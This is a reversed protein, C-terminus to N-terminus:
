DKKCFIVDAYAPLTSGPATTIDHDHNEGAVTIDAAGIDVTETGSETSTIGTHTHTDAGATGGYTAAGRIFKNDLATFRTWGSDCANDFLAILGSPLPNDVTFTRSAAITGGGNLGTGATLTVGAHAIHEDAVFGTLSDHNLVAELNAFTIKQSGSDTIDVMALFDGSAIGTEVGLENLDVTFTRNSAITGGGSLGVGATLTVGGHAVHEDTVFGALSDHNLTSELNAFTIKGSGSDTIDVMSLFDGAAISAETTLENLDMTFTRSAAITGGGSLGVGATLTVGSHAIHQDAVVGALSDHNLTSEFNAFTIKGSGSDTIDVVSLFDGSAISTETTLENLDVTFTRNSAISGGGSLGVGATLTVGGHAVHEDAVFNTLADHNVAAEHQTVNSQQVRADLLSGSSLSAASRTALDALASGAKNLKSWAIAAASNIDANLISDTLTLNAYPLTVIRADPITGSTLQSANLTTLASGSLNAVYVSSLATIKGATNVLAVNGTGINLGGGIDASDAATSTARFKGSGLLYDSIDAGDITVGGSALINGTITGGTRDLADDGLATFNANFAAATILTFPSFTNPITIQASASVAWLCLLLTFLAKKFM